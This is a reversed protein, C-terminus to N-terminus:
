DGGRHEREDQDPVVVQDGVHQQAAGLPLGEPDPQGREGGVVPGLPAPHHGARGQEGDRRHDEEQEDLAPDDAAQGGSGDLASSPAPRTDTASRWVVLHSISAAHALPGDPALDEARLVDDRGDPGARDTFERAEADDVAVSIPSRSETTDAAHQLVTGVLSPWRDCFVLWKVLKRQTEASASIGQRQLIIKVFRHVNVLRKVDRPNDELDPLLDLFAQLEDATDVVRTPPATDPEGLAGRDWALRAPEGPTPGTPGPRGQAQKRAPDSRRQAEKRAADSFLGAVFGRRMEDPTEPLHFPLQVIKGLYTEAFRPGPPRGDATYHADIADYVMQTHIGLVVYFESEGLLLNIAQLVEVIKETSCRDLDDIFVFIRPKDQGSRKSRDRPLRGTVFRLDDLVRHQYGMQERYDPRRVYTLVRESVPQLVQRARSWVLWFSAVLAGAVPVVGGLLRALASSDLQQDLWDRLPPIGVAALVLVLVAAATPLLLEAVLQAKRSRWAYAVPTLLRRRRPLAAELGSTITSALGAWIQTSDQFRWANFQVAVVKRRIAGLTRRWDRRGLSGPRRPQGDAGLTVGLLPKHLAAEASHSLLSLHLLQMFSSKGKGWPGHIAVTLPTTGPHLLFQALADAYRQVDLRDDHSPRDSSLPAFEYELADGGPTEDVGDLDLELYHDDHEPLSFDEPAGALVLGMREPLAQFLESEIKEWEPKIPDVVEALLVLRWGVDLAEAIRDLVPGAQIERRGDHVASVSDLDHLFRRERIQAPWGSGPRFLVSGRRNPERGPSPASEAAMRRSDDSLAAFLTGFVPGRNIRYRAALCDNWSQDLCWAQVRKLSKTNRALVVFGRDRVPGQNPGKPDKATNTLIAVFAEQPSNGWRSLRAEAM